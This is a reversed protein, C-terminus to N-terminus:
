VPAVLRPKCMCEIIATFVSPRGKPTSRDSHVAGLNFGFSSLRCADSIGISSFFVNQQISPTRSQISKFNRIGCVDKILTM